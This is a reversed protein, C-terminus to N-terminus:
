YLLPNEEQEFTNVYEEKIQRIILHHYELFEQMMHYYYELFEQGKETTRYILDGDSSIAIRILEKSLLNSLCCNVNALSLNAKQMIQSKKRYITCQQMIDTMIQLRGSSSGSGNKKNGEPSMMM